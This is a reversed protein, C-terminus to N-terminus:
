QAAQGDAEQAQVPMGVDSSGVPVVGAVRLAREAQELGCSRSQRTGPRSPYGAESRNDMRATGHRDASGQVYGIRLLEGFKVVPEPVSEALRRARGAACEIFTLLLREAIIQM